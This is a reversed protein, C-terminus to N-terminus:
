RGCRGLESATCTCCERIVQREVKPVCPAREPCNRRITDLQESFTPALNAIILGGTWLGAMFALAALEPKNM